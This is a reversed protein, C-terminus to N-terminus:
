DGFAKGNDGVLDTVTLASTPLPCAFRVVNDFDLEKGRRLRGAKLAVVTMLAITTSPM